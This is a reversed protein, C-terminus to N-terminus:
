LVIGPPKVVKVLELNFDKNQTVIIRDETSALKAVEEDSIGRKVDGVWKVDYGKKKLEQIFLRGLNEDLLLKLKTSKSM